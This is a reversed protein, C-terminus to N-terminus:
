APAALRDEIAAHITEFERGARFRAGPLMATTVALTV